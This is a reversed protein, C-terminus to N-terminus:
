RRIGGSNLLSRLRARHIRLRGYDLPVQDGSTVTTLGAARLRQEDRTDVRRNGHAFANRVVAVEVAGALGDTVDSWHHGEAQLLREGWDEIGRFTRSDVSLRDAAASEALAYSHILVSAFLTQDDQVAQLHDRVDVRYTGQGTSVSLEVSHDIQLSSWLDVERAFALRAGELFRTIRGWEDWVSGASRAEPSATDDELGDGTAQGRRPPLAGVEPAKRADAPVTRLPTINPGTIPAAPGDGELGSQAYKGVLQDNSASSRDRAGANPATLGQPAKYGPVGNASSEGDQSIAREDGAVEVTAEGDGAVEVTIRVVASM